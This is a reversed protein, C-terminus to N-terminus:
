KKAGSAIAQAQEKVAKVLEPPSVVKAESGWSLVWRTVEPLNALKMRVEVRTGKQNLERIEQSPHWLREAALRAAYGGLEVRVDFPAGEGEDKWIGFSHRLYNQANFSEPRQFKNPLVKVGEMRPLAFTRMADRDLDHGILYWGGEVEGLHYPQVRRKEPKDAGVKCYLFEVERRELVGKALRTFTEGDTTSVGPQKISLADDLDTWSFTIKDQLPRAIRQFAQDLSDGLKTGRLPQLACRAFFLTAAEESTMEFDPFTGVEGKYYFGHRRDDYEMPLGLYDRMFNIDRQVTKPTVELVEALGSCNPIAGSKVEAHIHYMRELPTREAVTTAVARTKDGARNPRLRPSRPKKSSPM